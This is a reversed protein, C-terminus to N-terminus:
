SWVWLILQSVRLNARVGINIFFLFLFILFFSSFIILFGMLSNTLTYFLRHVFFFFSAISIYVLRPNFHFYFFFWNSNISPRSKLELDKWTSSASSKKTWHSIYLWARPHCTNILFFIFIIWTTTEIKIRLKNILPSIVSISKNM